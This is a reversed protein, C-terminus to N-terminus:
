DPAPALRDRIVFARAAPPYVLVFPAARDPQAFQAPRTWTCIAPQRPKFPIWSQAACPGPTFGPPIQAGADAVIADAYDAGTADTFHTAGGFVPLIPLFGRDWSEIAVLRPHHAALSTYLAAASSQWRLMMYFPPSLYPGTLLAALILGNRRIRGPQWLGALGLGALPILLAIAPFLFRLEKHAIFSHELMIALAVLGAVPLQKAGRWALWLLFIAGWLWNYLLNLPYYRWSESDFYHAAIGVVMNLYINMRFSRFIEGWSWWDLLGAALVPLAATGLALLWHKPTRWCLFIGAIAIAPALQERFAFSLGLLFGALLVHRENPARRNLTALYLAPVLAYAAFAEELPHPAMLWLDPWFATLMGATWAGKRGQTLRGWRVAAWVISLSACCCLIRILILGPLPAPTLWRMIQMPLALLLPILWSRLGVQYEWPIFGHHFVLRHAQELYQFIEDPAYYNQVCLVILLRPILAAILCCALPHSALRNMM